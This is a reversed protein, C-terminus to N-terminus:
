DGVAAFDGHADDARATLQADRRDGDVGFAIPRSQVDAVRVLRIRDSRARRALAVEPDVLQDVDGLPRSGIAHVRAVSEEGLVFIKLPPPARRRRVKMPGVGSAISVIPLLVPPAFPPSARWAHRDHGASLVRDGGVAASASMPAIPRRSQSDAADHFRDGAAASLPMRVTVSAASRAPATRAARESAPAAKPSAVDIELAPERARAV